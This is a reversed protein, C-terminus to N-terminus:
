VREMGSFTFRTSNFREYVAIYLHVSTIGDVQEVIPLHSMPMRVWPSIDSIELEQGDFPGGYLEIRSRSM